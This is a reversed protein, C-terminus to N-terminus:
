GGTGGAQWDHRGTRVGTSSVAWLQRPIELEIAHVPIRHPPRPAMAIPPLGSLAADRQGASLYWRDETIQSWKDAGMVLIDYGAAVDALLQSSTVVVGIWPRGALQTRLTDAREAVSPGPACEKGLAVRSLVLDVRELGCQQWAAEAIAVHAVTAPNFSGPYCGIM